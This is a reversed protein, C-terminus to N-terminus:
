QTRYRKSMKKTLSNIIFKFTEDKCVLLTLMYIICGIFFQTFTIKINSIDLFSVIYLSIAMPISKLIYNFLYNIFSKIGIQKNLYWYQILVSIFVTITITFAAGKGGLYSILIYNFIINFILAIFYARMLIVTQNTATFYQNGSIGILSNLIILPSMIIIIEITPLFENGLFWPILNKASIIISVFLPIALMMSFQGARKILNTISKKDNNIYCNAIRPMMVTSLVTIFTLPITVIKEAMDYYAIAKTDSTIQEILIKGMQLYLIIAIQPLFLLISGKINTFFNRTTLKIQKIYRKTQILLITTSIFMSLSMIMIYLCLDDKGKVFIVICVISIVKVFFNKLITPKMDEIGIFFWSPDIITAILWGIFYIFEKEYKSFIAVSIYLCLCLIGLIIRLGFIESFTDERNKNNDRFYAVQRIGYNYTGVLGVASIINCISYIYGYIGLKEAGLTKALYPSLFIPIFLILVQYVINYIYNKLIVGM